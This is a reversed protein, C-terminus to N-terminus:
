TFVHQVGQQQDISAFHGVTGMGYRYVLCNGTADLHPYRYDVYEETSSRTHIPQAPTIQLGVLQKEWLAKLEANTDEYLQTVTRGTVNKVATFFFRPRTTEQFIDAIANAGYKRRLHTAMLYGVVYHNPLMDQYSGRTQKFYSFGGRELLNVKYRLLFYPIRGRGSQTLATETGVADGEFFWAPVNWHIIAAFAGEGGWYYALKNLGQRLKAYQVAHRFEHTALVASLWENSGVLNYDQTPFAFFDGRHPGAPYIGGNAEALSNKLVIPIRPPQSGLTHSVPVYLHELTNAIRKAEREISGRFIIDFHPTQM